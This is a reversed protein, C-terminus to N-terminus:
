GDRVQEIIDLAKFVDYNELIKTLRRTLTANPALMIGGWSPPVGARTRHGSKSDPLTCAFRRSYKGSATVMTLDCHERRVYLCRYDTDMYVHRGSALLALVADDDNEYLPPHERLAKQLAVIDASSHVYHLRVQMRLLYQTSPM